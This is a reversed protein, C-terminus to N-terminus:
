RMEPLMVAPQPEPGLFYGTVNEWGDPFLCLYEPPMTNYYEVHEPLVIYKPGGARNKVLAFANQRLLQSLIPRMRELQRIRGPGYQLIDSTSVLRSRRRVTSWVWTYLETVDREFRYRESMPFFLARAQELYWDMIVFANQMHRKGIHLRLIEGIFPNGQISTFNFLGALRIAIEPAKSVFDAIHALPYGPAIKLELERRKNEIIQKADESLTITPLEQGPNEVLNEFEDLIPKLMNEFPRLALSLRAADVRGARNGINSKVRTVIFRSLFGSSKATDGHKELYQSFIDPQVLLSIMLCLDLEYSEGDARRLDYRGGDWGKNLLGLLRKVMGNFFSIAEDTIIGAEPYQSLGEILGKLSVDEYLFRPKVPKRPEEKQHQVLAESEAEGSYGKKIAQRLNAELAQKATKWVPWETEYQQLQERHKKDISSFYQRIQRMLLDLIFTKGEGSEAITLLYLSCSKLENTFPSRIKFLSQCLLSMVTLMIAVILERPAQTLESLHIVTQEYQPPLCHVPFPGPEGNNSATAANNRSSPYQMNM